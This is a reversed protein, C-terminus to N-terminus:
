EESLQQIIHMGWQAIYFLYEIFINMCKIHILKKVVSGQIVGM